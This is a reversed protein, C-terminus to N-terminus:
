IKTFIVMFYYLKYHVFGICHGNIVGSRIIEFWLRNCAYANRLSIINCMYMIFCACNFYFLYVKQFEDDNPANHFYLYGGFIEDAGEGSLVVKVGLQAIKESMLYMPTSARISTVDYTELHWILKRLIDIGEQFINRWFSDSLCNKIVIVKKFSNFFLLINLTFLSRYFLQIIM